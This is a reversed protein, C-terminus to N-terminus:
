RPPCRGRWRPLVVVVTSQHCKDSCGSTDIYILIYILIEWTAFDFNLLLIDVNERLENAAIMPRWLSSYGLSAWLVTLLYLCWPRERGERYRM